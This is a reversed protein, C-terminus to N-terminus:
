HGLHQLLVVMVNSIHQLEMSLYKNSMTVYHYVNVIPFLSHDVNGQLPYYNVFKVHQDHILDQYRDIGLTSGNKM